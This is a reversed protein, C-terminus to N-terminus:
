ADAYSWKFRYATDQKGCACRSINESCKKNMHRAAEGCSGFSQIVTNDLNYQYVRKSNPNKEGLKVKSMLKITDETHITGYRPALEGKKGYNHNKEGLHSDRNRQRTSKTHHKGFMHHNEGSQAEKMRHITVESMRGNYGGEKLNYGGPSLTGLVKVMLEEHKNLDEDPCEYWTKEMNEWGYKQISRSIAVCQSNPNRHEELREEIPRITQGIYSKGSPSTLMYIYGM